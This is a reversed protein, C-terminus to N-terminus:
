KIIQIILKIEIGKVSYNCDNKTRITFHYVVTLFIHLKITIFHAKYILCTYKQIDVIRWM